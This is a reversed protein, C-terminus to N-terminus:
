QKYKLWHLPGLSQQDTSDLGTKGKSADNDVTKIEKAGSPAAAAPTTSDIGKHAHANNNILLQENSITSLDGEKGFDVLHNLIRGQRTPVGGSFLTLCLIVTVTVVWIIVRRYFCHSLLARMALRPSSQVPLPLLIGDHKLVPSASRSGSKPRPLCSGREVAM